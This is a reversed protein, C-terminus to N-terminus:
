AIEMGDVAPNVIKMDDLNEWGDDKNSAWEAKGDTENGLGKVFAKARQAKFLKKMERVIRRKCPIATKMKKLLEMSLQAEIIAAQRNKVVEEAALPPPLASLLLRVERKVRRKPVQEEIEKLLELPGQAGDLPPPLASLLLRVERKVRRKPVQEEIEKLLELRVKLEMLRELRKKHNSKVCPKGEDAKNLNAKFIGGKSGRVGADADLNSTESSADSKPSWNGVVYKWVPIDPRKSPVDVERPAIPAFIDQDLVLKRYYVRYVLFIPMRAFEWQLPCKGSKGAAEYQKQVFEDCVEDFALKRYYVRYVLFIPMRAFEWQLPCKGSKGAAEQATCADHFTTLSSVWVNVCFVEPFCFSIYQKQVFEDCVEDHTKEEDLLEAIGPLIDEKIRKERGNGMGMKAIIPRADNRATMSVIGAKQEESLFDLTYILDMATTMIAIMRQFPRMQSLRPALCRKAEFLALILFSRKMFPKFEGRMADKMRSAFSDSATVSTSMTTNEPPINVRTTSRSTLSSTTPSHSSKRYLEPLHGHLPVVDVDGFTGVSGVRQRRNGGDQALMPRPAALPTETAAAADPRMAVVDAVGRGLGSSPWM